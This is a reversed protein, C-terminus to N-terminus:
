KNKALWNRLFARSASIPKIGNVQASGIEEGEYYVHLMNDTELYVVIYTIGDIEIELEQEM